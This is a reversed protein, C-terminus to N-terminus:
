DHADVHRSSNSIAAILTSSATRQLARFRHTEPAAERSAKNQLRGRSAGDQLRERSAGDQLRERSAGDQLRECLRAELNRMELLPRRPSARLADLFAGGFLSATKLKSQVHSLSIACRTVAAFLAKWCSLRTLMQDELAKVKNTLICNKWHTTMDTSNYEPSVHATTFCCM